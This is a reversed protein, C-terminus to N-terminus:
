NPEAAPEFMQRLAVRDVKMSATYPLSEVFRWTVPIHTAPVHQRLHTELEAVSPRAVGPKLQIAAAPVQGLRKDAMGTVGAASVSNHVKLAREIDDPLLKFGGRIIAGDARGHIFVFGDEDIVGIDSTRLWDPGIRPAIVELVGPQGPPLVSGTEPDIARLQAGAFPRGVSGLKEEGWKEHLDLSMFTVPGGFETAGYLQLIPIGYRQEFARQVGPDLPAAGVTLFRLPALDERPIGAELVMQVAPPPLAISHPKHRLVFDHWAPVTFRGVLVGRLGNLLTPLVLYLGTITSFSLYMFTPAITAPDAKEGTDLINTAVLHKEIMEYSIAFPKPPGTTGSTLLEIRLGKLKECDATSRECGPVATADIGSLAIGAIGHEKLATVLEESFDEAMGMVVAPKHRLIDRAIGAPSQYVHIMRINRGAATLGILAGVAAPRNRPLLAIRAAPDAGSADLLERLRQAVRNLEGWNVWRGEWELAPRSADHALAQASMEQLSTM